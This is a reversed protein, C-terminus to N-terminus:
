REERLNFTRLYGDWAERMAQQAAEADRAALIYKALAQAQKTAGNALYQERLRKARAIRASISLSM